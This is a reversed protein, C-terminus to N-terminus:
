MESTKPDEKLKKAPAARVPQLNKRKKPFDGVWILEAKAPVDETNVLCPTQLEIGAPLKDCHQYETTASGRTGLYVLAVNGKENKVDGRDVKRVAWFPETMAAAGQTTATTPQWQPKIFLPKSSVLEKTPVWEVAQVNKKKASSSHYTFNASHPLLFITGKPRNDEVFCRKEPKTIIQFRPWKYKEDLWKQCLELGYTVRAWARNVCIQENSSALTEVCNLIIGRDKLEIRDYMFGWLDKFQTYTIDITTKSGPTRAVIKGLGVDEIEAIVGDKKNRM